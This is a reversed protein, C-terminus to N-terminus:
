FERITIERASTIEGTITKNSSTNAVRIVDGLAGNELAKGQASLQMPGSRYILTVNEGRSVILPQEVENELIPQGALVMRRPTKGILSDAKLIMNPRVQRERLPAMTVDRAGITTGNNLTERLVPVEVLREFSGAAPIHQVPNEIDPAAIVARFTKTQPDIKIDEIRLTAPQSAALMIPSLDSPLNLIFDGDQMSQKLAALVSEQLDTEIQARDIITAARTITVQDANSQPRWDLGTALALRMLTNAKLVMKEGPEPARGLTRDLAADVGTFVDSLKLTSEDTKVNPKIEAALVAQLSCLIALMVWGGILISERMFRKTKGKM